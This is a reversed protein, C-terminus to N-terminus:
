EEWFMSYLFTAVSVNAVVALLYIAAVDRINSVTMMTIFAFLLLIGLFIGAMFHASRETVFLPKFTLDDLLYFLAVLSSIFMSTIALMWHYPDGGLYIFFYFLFALIVFGMGSVLSLKSRDFEETLLPLEEEYEGITEAPINEFPSSHSTQHEIDMPRNEFPNKEFDEEM